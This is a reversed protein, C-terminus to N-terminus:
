PSGESLLRCCPNDSVRSFSVLAPSFSVLPILTGPSQQPFGSPMMAGGPQLPVAAFSPQSPPNSQSFSMQNPYYPFQQVNGQSPVPYGPNHQMPYGPANPDM